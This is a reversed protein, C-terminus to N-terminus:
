RWRSASSVRLALRGAPFFFYVPRYGPQRRGGRQGRGFLDGLAGLEDWRWVWDVLGDEAEIAFALIM